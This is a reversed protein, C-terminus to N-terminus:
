KYLLPQAIEVIKGDFVRKAIDTTDKGRISGESALRIVDSETLWVIEMESSVKQNKALGDAMFVFRVVTNNEHTLPKHTIEILTLGGVEYGTEELFERQACETLSENAELKGGPLGYKGAANPKTERIFMIKGESKVVVSAVVVIM